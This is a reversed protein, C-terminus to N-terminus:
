YYDAFYTKLYKSASSIPLNDDIEQIPIVLGMKHEYSLHKQILAEFKPDMALKRKQCFAVIEAMNSAMLYDEPNDPNTSTFVVHGEWGGGAHVKMKVVKADSM